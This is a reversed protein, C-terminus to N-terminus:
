LAGGRDTHWRGWPFHNQCDVFTRLDSSRNLNRSEFAHSPHPYAHHPYSGRYLGQHQTVPMGSPDLYPRFNPFRMTSSTSGTEYSPVLLPASWQLHHRLQMQSQHFNQPSCVFSQRTQDGDKNPHTPNQYKMSTKPARSHPNKKLNARGAPPAKRRHNNSKTHKEPAKGRGVSHKGKQPETKKGTQSTRSQHFQKQRKVGRNKSCAKQTKKMSRVRRAAAGRQHKEALVKQRERENNWPQRFTKLKYLNRGKVLLPFLPPLKKIGKSWLVEITFTHQQKAAGYSEKVVRGAITRKGLFSGSRTM